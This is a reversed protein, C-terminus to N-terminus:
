RGALMSAFATDVTPDTPIYDHAGSDARFWVVSQIDDAEMAAPIGRLFDIQTQTSFTTGADSADTQIGTETIHRTIDGYGHPVLVENVFTAFLQTATEGDAHGGTKYPDWGVDDLKSHAPLFAAETAPDAFGALWVLSHVHSSHAHILDAVHDAAAVYEAPTQGPAVGGEGNVYNADPEVDLALLVRTDLADLSKIVAIVHDDYTGAAIDSWTVWSGDTIKTMLAVQVERGDAAASRMTAPLPSDWGLYFSAVAPQERWGSTYASLGANNGSLYVGIAPGSGGGTTWRVIAVVAAVCVLAVVGLSWGRQRSM